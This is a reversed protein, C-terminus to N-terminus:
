SKWGRKIKMALSERSWQYDLWLSVVLFGVTFLTAGYLVASLISTHEM